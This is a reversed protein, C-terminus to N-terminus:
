RPHEQDWKKQVNQMFSLRWEEPIDDNMTGAIAMICYIRSGLFPLYEDNHHKGCNFRRFIINSGKNCDCTVYGYIDIFEKYSDPCGCHQWTITENNTCAPCKSKFRYKSM